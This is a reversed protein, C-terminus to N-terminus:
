LLLERININFDEYICVPITDDLAYQNTDTDYAQVLEM